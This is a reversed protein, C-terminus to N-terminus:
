AETVPSGPAPRPGTEAEWLTSGSGELNGEPGTELSRLPGFPARLGGGPATRTSPSGVGGPPLNSAGESVTGESTQSKAFYGWFPGDSTAWPGNSAIHPTSFLGRTYNDM